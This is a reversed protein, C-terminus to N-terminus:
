GGRNKTQKPEIALENSTIEDLSAHSESSDSDTNESKSSKAPTAIAIFCTSTSANLGNFSRLREAHVKGAPQSGWEIGREQQQEQM